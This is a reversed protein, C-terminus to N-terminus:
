EESRAAPGMRRNDSAERGNPAIRGSQAAEQPTARHSLGRSNKRKTGRALSQAALTVGCLSAAVHALV